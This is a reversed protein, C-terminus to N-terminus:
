FRFLRPCSSVTVNVNVERWRSPVTRLLVSSPRDCRCADRFVCWTRFLRPAATANRGLLTVEVGPSFTDQAHSMVADNPCDVTGTPPRKRLLNCKQTQPNLAAWVDSDQWYFALGCSFAHHKLYFSAGLLHTRPEQAKEHLCMYPCLATFVAVDGFM